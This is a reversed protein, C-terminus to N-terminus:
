KFINGRLGFSFITQQHTRKSFQFNFIWVQARISATFSNSQTFLGKRKDANEFTFFQTDGIMPSINYMETGIRYGACLQLGVEGTGQLDAFWNVKGNNEYTYGMAYYNATGFNINMLHSVKEYGNGNDAVSQCKVAITSFLLCITLLKKM